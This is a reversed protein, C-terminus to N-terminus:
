VAAFPLVQKGGVADKITAGFSKAQADPGEFGSRVHDHHADTIGHTIHSSGVEDEFFLTDLWNGVPWQDQSLVISKEALPVLAAPIQLLACRSPCFPSKGAGKGSALTPRILCHCVGQLAPCFAASPSLWEGTRPSCNEKNLVM